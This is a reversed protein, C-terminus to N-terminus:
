VRVANLLDRMEIAAKRTYTQYNEEDDHKQYAGMLSRSANILAGSGTKDFAYRVDEAGGGQAGYGPVLFFTDPLMERLERLQAPHTAGIVAGITDPTSLSATLRAVRRYLTEEGVTLDQLESSSPNSTKVLSFLCKNYQRAAKVFPLIGDSGLYPNVTVCDAGASMEGFAAEAYAEATTGIDGRKADLIVALGAEKAYRITEYLAKIGELGAMEYFASQPKVAPILDATCDILGKGFALMAEGIPLDKKLFGPILSPRPDLGMVTPNNKKEILERIELFNMHYPESSPTQSVGDM